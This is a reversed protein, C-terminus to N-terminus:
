AGAQAAERKAAALHAPMPQRQGRPARQRMAEVLEDRSWRLSRPGLVMPEPMWAEHRLDAFTRQSVGFLAAAQSENLFPPQSAPEPRASREAAGTTPTQRHTTGGEATSQM